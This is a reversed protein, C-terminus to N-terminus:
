EYVVPTNVLLVRTMSLSLNRYSSALRNKFFFSDGRSLQQTVEGITLELTGEIVYGVTEGRHTIRDTKEGGPVIRHISGQLLNGTGSPVLREYSIGTGGRITDTTSTPRDGDKVVFPSSHLEFSFFSSLDHNLAVVIRHLMAISPSAKDTEIRSIMSM